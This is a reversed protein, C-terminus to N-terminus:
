IILAQQFNKQMLYDGKLNFSYFAELIFKPFFVIILAVVIVLFLLLKLIAKIIKM